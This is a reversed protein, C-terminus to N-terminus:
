INLNRGNEEVNVPVLKSIELYWDLFELFLIDFDPLQAM